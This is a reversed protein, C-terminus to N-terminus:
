LLARQLPSKAIIEKLATDVARKTTGEIASNGGNGSIFNYQNNVAEPCKLDVSVSVFTYAFLLEKQDILFGKELLYPLRMIASLPTRAKTNINLFNNHHTNGGFQGLAFDFYVMNVTWDFTGTVKTPSGTEMTIFQFKKWNYNGFGTLEMKRGFRSIFEDKAAESKFFIDWDKPERERVVDRVAGGALFCHEQSFEYLDPVEKLELIADTIKVANADTSKSSLVKM